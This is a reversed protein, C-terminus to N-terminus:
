RMARTAQTLGETSRPAFLELVDPVIFVASQYTVGERIAFRLAAQRSGFLGGRRGLADRVVWQGQRNQGVLLGPPAGDSAHRAALRASAREGRDGVRSAKRELGLRGRRLAAIAKAVVFYAWRRRAPAPLTPTRTSRTRRVGQAFPLTAFAVLSPM